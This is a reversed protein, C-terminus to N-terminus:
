RPAAPRLSLISVLVLAGIMGVHEGATHFATIARDGELSWFHHVIPITLATFIGLAGAGLWTHWRAIILASGSLQVVITAINFLWGPNLGFMEMEAVGGRFDILKALGSGWFPFTFVIRAVVETVRSSLIATIISPAM